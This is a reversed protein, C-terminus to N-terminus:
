EGWIVVKLECDNWSDDESVIEGQYVYDLQVFEVPEAVNDYLRQSCIAVDMDPNFQELHRILDKVKM